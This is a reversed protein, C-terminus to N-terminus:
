YPLEYGAGDGSPGRGGSFYSCVPYLSFMKNSQLAGDTLILGIFHYTSLKLKYNRRIDMRCECFLLLWPKVRNLIKKCFYFLLLCKSVFVFIASILNSFSRLRLIDRIRLLSVFGSIHSRLLSKVLPYLYLFFAPFIGPCGSIQSFFYLVAM